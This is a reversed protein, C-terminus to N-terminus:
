LKTLTNIEIVSINGGLCAESYIKDKSKICMEKSNCFNNRPQTEWANM